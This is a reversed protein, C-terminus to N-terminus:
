LTWVLDMPFMGVDKAWVIQAHLSDWRNSDSQKRHTCAAGSMTELM